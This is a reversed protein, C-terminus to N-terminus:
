ARRRGCRMRTTRTRRPDLSGEFRQALDASSLVEAGAARVLEVTGADVRSVYPLRARPSYEM